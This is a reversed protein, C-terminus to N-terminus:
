TEGHQKEEKIILRFIWSDDPLGPTYLKLADGGMNRLPMGAPRKPNGCWAM